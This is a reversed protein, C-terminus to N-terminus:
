WPMRRRGKTGPPSCPRTSSRTPAPGSPDPHKTNAAEGPASSARVVSSAGAGGSVIAGTRVSVVSSTSDQARVRVRAPQETSATTESVPPSPPPPSVPPPPPPSDSNSLPTASPSRIPPPAGGEEADAETAWVGIQTFSGSPCVTSITLSAGQRLGGATKTWGSTPCWGSCGSCCWALCIVDGTAM